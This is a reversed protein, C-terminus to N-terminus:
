LDYIDKRHAIKLILIEINDEKVEFLARIGYSIKYRYLNSFNVLSTVNKGNKLTEYNQALYDLKKKITLVEKKNFNSLNKVALESYSLRM